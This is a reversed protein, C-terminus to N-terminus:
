VRMRIDNNWCPEEEVSDGRRVSGVLTAKGSMSGGVETSITGVTMVDVARVTISAVVAVGEDFEVLSELLRGPASFPSHRRRPGKARKM